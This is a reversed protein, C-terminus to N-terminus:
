RMDNEAVNNALKFDSDDQNEDDVDSDSHHWSCIWIQIIFSFYMYFKHLFVCFSVYFRHLAQLCVHFSVFFETVEKPQKVPWINTKVDDDNTAKDVKDSKHKKKTKKENNWSEESENRNYIFQTFLKSWKKTYQWHTFSLFIWKMVNCLWSHTIWKNFFFFSNKCLNLPQQCKHSTTMKEKSKKKKKKHKKSKEVDSATNGNLDPNPNPTFLKERINDPLRDVDRFIFM